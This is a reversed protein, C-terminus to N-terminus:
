RFQRDLAQWAEVCAQAADPNESVGPYLNAFHAINSGFVLCNLQKERLRYLAHSHWYESLPGDLKQSARAFARLNALWQEGGNPFSSVMLWTSADEVAPDVSDVQEGVVAQGLLHYLTYEVMDLGSKLANQRSEEFNDQARVAEALYTAPLYITQSSPDYHPSGAGGAVITLADPWDLPTEGLSAADQVMGSQHLAQEFLAVREDDSSVWEIELNARATSVALTAFLISFLASAIRPSM